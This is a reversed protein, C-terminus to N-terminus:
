KWGHGALYGVFLMASVVVLWLAARRCHLVFRHLPHYYRTKTVIITNM